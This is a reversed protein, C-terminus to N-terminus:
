GLLENIFLIEDKQWYHRPMVPLVPNIINSDVCINNLIVNIMLMKEWIAAVCDVLYFKKVFQKVCDVTHTLTRRWPSFINIGYNKTYKIAQSSREWVYFILARVNFYPKPWTLIGRVGLNAHVGTNAARNYSPWLGDCV